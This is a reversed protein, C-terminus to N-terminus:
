NLHIHTRKQINCIFQCIKWKSQMYKKGIIVVELGFKTMFSSNLPTLGWIKAIPVKRQVTIRLSSTYIMSTRFYIFSTCGIHSRRTKTMNSTGINIALLILETLSLLLSAIQNTDKMVYESSCFIKKKDDCYVVHFFGVVESFICALRLLLRWTKLVTSRNAHRKDCDQIHPEEKLKFRLFSFQAWLVLINKKKTCAELRWMLAASSGALPSCGSGM